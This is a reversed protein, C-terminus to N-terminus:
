RTKKQGFLQNVDQFLQISILIIVLGIVTGLSSVWRTFNSEKNKVVKLITKVLDFSKFSDIEEKTNLTTLIIGANQKSAANLMFNLAKKSNDDDLHSFPEDILLWKFPQIVARIIAVRQQQGM